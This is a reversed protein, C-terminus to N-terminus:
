NDVYVRRLNVSLPHNVHAVKPQVLRPTGAVRRVTKYIMFSGGMAILAAVFFAASHILVNRKKM